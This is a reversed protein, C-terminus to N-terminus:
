HTNCSVIARVYVQRRRRVGPAFHLNSTNVEERERRFNNQVLVLSGDLTKQITDAASGSISYRDLLYRNANSRSQSNVNALTGSGEKSSAKIQTGPVLVIYLVM